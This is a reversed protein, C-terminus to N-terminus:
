FIEAKAPIVAKKGMVACYDLPSPVGEEFAGGKKIESERDRHGRHGRHSLMKKGTYGDLIM